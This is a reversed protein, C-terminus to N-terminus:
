YLISPVWLVINPWITMIGILVLVPILFPLSGYAITMVDYKPVTGHLVFLNLGFPPTVMGMEALVVYVIGFWIPSFGLHIIVPMVFPLTLVMMSISDFFCGLIIYLVYIAVLIGYTGFPLNIVWDSVTEAVGMKQLVFALVKAMSVIIMVMATVKAADLFSAKLVGWNMQRYGFALVVSLFAGLSAAETATMIGGFIVGLTIAILGFWPLLQKLATFRERWSYSVPKPALSPTIVVRVIVTLVLLLALLLGPIIGAAFLRVVSVQEWGGYIIMILSPPILVALTGSIAITGLALRPDYGLREMEPFAAKGFIAVAAVNSGSMAGFIANAVVVSSALGGPLGGIWKNAADFLSRVIGSNALVTGMFIFLPAATLEAVNLTGWTTWAMQSQPQSLFLLLGISGMIGFAFAIEMGMFLLILVGGVLIAMILLQNM